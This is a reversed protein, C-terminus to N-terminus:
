TILLSAISGVVSPDSQVMGAVLWISLFVAGYGVLMMFPEVVSFAYGIYLNQGLLEDSVETFKAFQEKKKSLPSSWVFAVYIKRPLPM